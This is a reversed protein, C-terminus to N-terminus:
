GIPVTEESAQAIELRIALEVAQVESDVAAERQRYSTLTWVATSPRTKHIVRSRASARFLRSQDVSSARLSARMRRSASSSMQATASM